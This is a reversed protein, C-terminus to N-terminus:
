PDAHPAASCKHDDVVLGDVQGSVPAERGLPRWSVLGEYVWQVERVLDKLSALSSEAVHGLFM